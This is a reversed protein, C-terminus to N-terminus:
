IYKEIITNLKEMAKYYDEDARRGPDDSAFSFRYMFGVKENYTDVLDGYVFENLENYLETGRLDFFEKELLVVIAKEKAEIYDYVAGVPDDNGRRKEDLWIANFGETDKFENLFDIIADYIKKAATLQRDSLKTMQTEEEVTRLLLGAELGLAQELDAIKELDSPGNVGKRWNRVAEDSVNLKEAIQTTMKGLSARNKRCYDKFCSNFVYTNFHMPKGDITFTKLTYEM